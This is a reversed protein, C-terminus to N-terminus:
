DGSNVDSIGNTTNNINSNTEHSFLEAKYIFNNKFLEFYDQNKKYKNRLRRVVLTNTLIGYKFQIQAPTLVKVYKGNEKIYLSKM